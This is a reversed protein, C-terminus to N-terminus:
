PVPDLGGPHFPHCRAVRRSGLWLGRVAGHKQVADALYESCRPHFRCAPGLLPSVMLQYARVLKVLGTRAIASADIM